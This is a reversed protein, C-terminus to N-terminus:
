LFIVEGEVIERAAKAAYNALQVWKLQDRTKLEETLGHSAAFDVILSEFRAQAEESVNYLYENLTGSM